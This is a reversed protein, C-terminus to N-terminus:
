STCAKAVSREVSRGSRGAAGAVQAKASDRKRLQQLAQLIRVLANVRSLHAAVSAAFQALSADSALAQALTQEIQQLHQQCWAKMFEGDLLYADVSDSSSLHRDAVVLEVYDILWCGLGHNLAADFIACYRHEVAGKTSSAAAPQPPVLGASCCAEYLKDIVRTGDAQKCHLEKPSAQVLLELANTVAM